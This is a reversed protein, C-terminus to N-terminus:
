KRDKMLSSDDFSVLVMKSIDSSECGTIVSKQLKKAKKKLRRDNVQNVHICKYM